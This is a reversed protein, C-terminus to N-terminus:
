QAWWEGSPSETWKRRGENVMPSRDGPKSMTAQPYSKWLM